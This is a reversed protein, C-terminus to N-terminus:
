NRHRLFQLKDPRNTTISIDPFFYALFRAILPSNVTYVAVELGYRKALWYTLPNLIWFNLVVGTLGFHRADHLAQLVDVPNFRQVLYIKFHPALDHFTGIEKLDLALVRVESAPMDQLQTALQEAWGRGKAEIHLPLPRCADLAAQLDIVQQGDKLTVQLLEARTHDAIAQRAGAVRRLSADHSLIFQNDSSLRVDIEISDVGAQKAAIISKLTNELALGAAGRHGIIKM